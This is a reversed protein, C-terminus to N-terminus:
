KIEGILSYLPLIISAVITGIVTGVGCMLAPELVGTLAALATEVELEYYDALRLLMADLTGSEEGARVLALFIGDFLASAELQEGLPAGQQLATLLGKLGQRFGCGEAVAASAELAALLDVGASLLSGLTRAFRATAGNRWVAGLIPVRLRLVDLALAWKTDSRRVRHLAFACGAVLVALAAWTAPNALMRGVRILVRTTLPLPVHMEAFMSAFAPMTAAVLFVVLAIAALTVVLPYALAAAIKKRLARVREELDAISCLARDLSGGVEGAKITAVSISSFEAPHRQMALSLATGNAVDAAISALVESFTVDRGDAVLADLARKVPIGAGILAAFSRFFVLRASRRRRLLSALSAFAGRPTVAPEVDTVFLSRGRLHAIASARSEAEISGKIEKGESSRAAYHYLQASV